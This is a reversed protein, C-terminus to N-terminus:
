FAFRDTMVRASCAAVIVQNVGADIDAKIMGVGEDGCLCAHTKPEMRFESKAVGELTAVNVAEGIGCGSCLYVGTKRESM